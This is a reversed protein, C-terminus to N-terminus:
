NGPGLLYPSLLGLARNPIAYGLGEFKTTDTNSRNPGRRTEWLHRLIIKAADELSSPVPSRGAQYTVTYTDPYIYFRPWRIVGSDPDVKLTAVDLAGRYDGVVSTLSIVPYIPLPIKGSATITKVVSRATTPGCLFDIGEEVTAALGQLLVLNETVETASINLADAFDAQQLISM